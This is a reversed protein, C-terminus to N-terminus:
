PMRSVADLGFSVRAQWPPPPLGKLELIRQLRERTGARLRGFKVGFSPCVLKAREPPPVFAWAIEGHLALTGTSLTIECLFPEGTRVHSPMREGDIEVGVGGLSIDRVTYYPSDSRDESARVNIPVRVHKRVKEYKHSESIRQLIEDLGKRDTGSDYRIRLLYKGKSVQNCQVVEGLVEVPAKLGKALLEFVFRTGVPPNKRSEIVVMGKGVSRTFEGLLAEPSKYTVKLRVPEPSLVAQFYPAARLPSLLFELSMQGKEQM